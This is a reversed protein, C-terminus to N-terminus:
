VVEFHPGDKFGKWDGGWIIKLERKTATAKVVKAFSEYLPWDWRVKGNLTVAIDVARARRDPSLDLIHKSKLTRSAGARYLQRQREHTRAGETIIIGLGPHATSWELAADDILDALQQNVSHRSARNWSARSGTPKM